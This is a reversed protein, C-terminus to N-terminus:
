WRLRRLPSRAFENASMSVLKLTVKQREEAFVVDVLDVLVEELLVELV